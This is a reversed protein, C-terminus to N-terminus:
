VGSVPDVDNIAKGTPVFTVPDSDANDTSTGVMRQEHPVHEDSGLGLLQDMECWIIDNVVSSSTLINGM